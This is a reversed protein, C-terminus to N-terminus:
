MCVTQMVFNSTLLTVMKIYTRHVASLAIMHVLTVNAICSKTYITASQVKFGRPRNGV